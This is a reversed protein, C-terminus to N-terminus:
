RMIKNIETWLYNQFCNTKIAKCSSPALTMWFTHWKKVFIFNLVISHPLKFFIRNSYMKKKNKYKGEAWDKSYKRFRVQKKKRGNEKRNYVKTLNRNLKEFHWKRFIRRLNVNIRRAEHTGPTANWMRTLSEFVKVGMNVSM